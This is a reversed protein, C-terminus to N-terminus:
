AAYIDYCAGKRANFKLGREGIIAEGITTSEKSPCGPSLDFRGPLFRVAQRRDVLGSTEDKLLELLSLPPLRDNHGVM